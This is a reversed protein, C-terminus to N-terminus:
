RGTRRGEPETGRTRLIGPDTDPERSFDQKQRFFGRRHTGPDHFKELWRAHQSPCLGGSTWEM